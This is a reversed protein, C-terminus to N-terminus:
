DAEMDASSYLMLLSFFIFSIMETMSGVKTIMRETITPRM